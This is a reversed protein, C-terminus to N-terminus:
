HQIYKLYFSNFIIVISINQKFLRLIQLNIKNIYVLINSINIELM